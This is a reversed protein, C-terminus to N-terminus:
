GIQDCFRVFRTVRSLGSHFDGKFFRERQFGIQNAMKKRVFRERILEVLLRGLILRQAEGDGEEM